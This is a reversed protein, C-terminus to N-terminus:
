LQLDQWTKVTGDKELKGLQGTNKDLMYITGDKRKVTQFSSSPPNYKIGYIGLQAQIQQQKVPDTANLAGSDQFQKFLMRGQDFRKYEELGKQYDLTGQKHALQEKKIALQKEQEAFQANVQEQAIKLKNLEVEQALQTPQVSLENRTKQLGAAAQQNGLVGQNVDVTTTPAFGQINRRADIQAPIPIGNREVPPLGSVAANIAQGKGVQKQGEATGEAPAYGLGIERKIMDARQEPTGYQYLPAQDPRHKQIWEAQGAQQQQYARQQQTMIDIQRQRDQQYAQSIDKYAQQQQKYGKMAYYNNLGGSLGQGLMEGMDGKTVGIQLKPADPNQNQIATNNALNVKPDYVAMLQKYQDETMLQSMQAQQASADALGVNFQQPSVM